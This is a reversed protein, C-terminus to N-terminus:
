PKILANMDNIYEHFSYVSYHLEMKGLNIRELDLCDNVIGLLYITSVNIQQLTKKVEEPQNLENQGLQSLGIIVNLPTRLDHSMRSIFESKAVDAKKAQILANELDQLQQQEKMYIVTIDSLFFLIQNKEDDLYCFQIKKRIKKGNLFIFYAYSYVKEKELQKNVKLFNINAYITECDEPLAREEIIKKLFIDYNKIKKILVDKDNRIVRLTFKETLVDIIGINDYEMEGIRDTIRSELVKETIDYTYMFMFVDKTTPEELLSYVTDVWAFNNNKLYRTSEFNGENHNKYFEELLNERKFKNEFNKYSNKNIYVLKNILESYTLVGMDPLGRNKKNVFYEVKDKTINFYGKSVLSSVDREKMQLVLQMYLQEKNKEETINISTGIISDLEGNHFIPNLIIREWSIEKTINNKLCFDHQGSVRKEEIAQIFQFM